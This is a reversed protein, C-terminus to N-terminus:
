ASPTPTSSSRSPARASSARPRSASPRRSTPRRRTSSGRMFKDLNRAKQQMAWSAGNTQFSPKPKSKAIKSTLTDTVAAVVNLAIREDYMLVLNQNYTAADFSRIDYNGYLRAHQLNLQKRAQQQMAARPGHFLRPGSSRDRGRRDVLVGAHGRGHPAHRGAQPRPLVKMDRYDM